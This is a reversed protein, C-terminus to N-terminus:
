QNNERFRKSASKIFKINRFRMAAWDDDVAVMRVGHFGANNLTKWGKDREPGAVYKGSTKKPYCFWLIGDATLNHLAAPALREVDALTRVFLIMFEYPCRQDIEFDTIIDKLEESFAKKFDEEANILAIRKYGKYNLKRLLDGM